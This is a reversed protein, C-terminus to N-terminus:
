ERNPLFSEGIVRVGRRDRAVQQNQNVPQLERIRDLTLGGKRSALTEPDQGQDGRWIPLAIKAIVKSREEETQRQLEEQPMQAKERKLLRYNCSCSPNYSTQYAFATPLASYPEGTDVSVMDEVSQGATKHYYLAMPTGPCLAECAMADNEASTKQTSFSVPFHHGDCTRVCVTRVTNYNKLRDETSRRRKGNLEKRDRRAQERRRKTSSQGFIQETISRRRAERTKAVSSGCGARRMARLISRRKAPSASSKGRNRKRLSALNNRMRKLTGRLNGCSSHAERRFLRKNASCGYRGMANQVKSIQREQTRIAKRYKQSVRKSGGRSASALQIELRRCQNSEASAPSASQALGVLGVLLALVVAAASFPWSHSIARM